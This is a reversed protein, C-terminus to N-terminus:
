ADATKLRKKESQNSKMVQAISDHMGERERM